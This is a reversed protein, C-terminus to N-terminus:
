SAGPKQVVQGSVALRLQAARRVPERPDELLFRLVGEASSREAVQVKRRKPLRSSRLFALSDREPCLAHTLIAM